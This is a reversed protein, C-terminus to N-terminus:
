ANEFRGSYVAQEFKYCCDAPIDSKETLKRVANFPLSCEWATSGTGDKNIATITQGLWPTVM